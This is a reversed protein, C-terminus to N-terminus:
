EADEEHLCSKLAALRAVAETTGRVALAKVEASVVTDEIHERQRAMLADIALLIATSLKM